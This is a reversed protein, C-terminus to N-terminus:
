LERRELKKIISDWGHVRQVNKNYKGGNYTKDLLIVRNTKAVKIANDYNDEVMFKLKPFERAIRDEKHEDWMIADYEFKNKKLWEITDAFIRPYKKVPRASLLVIKYGKERLLQMGAVSDKVAPLFRKEGEARFRHKLEKLDERGIIEECADYLNYDDLVIDIKKGTEKEVFNIFGEPYAALVGDIDVAVVNEDELLDLEFDQHWKQEVVESKRHFEKVFDEPSIEWVNAISLLYKFVDIIEERLNEENVKILDRKNIKWNIEKLVEDVESILHLAYEKTIAQKDLGKLRKKIVEKTFKEQREFIKKLEKM